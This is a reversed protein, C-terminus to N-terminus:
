VDITSGYHHKKINKLKETMASPVKNKWDGVESIASACGQSWDKDWDINDKRWQDYEAISLDLEKTEGTKKNVVPYTPLIYEEKKM